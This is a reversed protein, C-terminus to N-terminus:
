EEGGLLEAPLDPLGAASEERATMEQLALKRRAAHWDYRCKASHFKKHPAEPRVPFPKGCQACKVIIAM